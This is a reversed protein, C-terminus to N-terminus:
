SGRGALGEAQDALPGSVTGEPLECGCADLCPATALKWLGWLGTALLLALSASLLETQHLAFFHQVAGTTSYLSLGSVGVFALVSPVFPTCCLFSPLLSVVFAVGSAAGTAARARAIRRMAYVQIVIVLGMGLGLAVSWAAQYTTLYDWNALSLRQTFDFPLLLTYALAVLASAVIAALRRGPTGLVERAAARLAGLGPRTRSVPGATTSM